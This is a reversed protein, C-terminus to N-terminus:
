GREREKEMREWTRESSVDEGCGGKEEGVEGVKRKGKNWRDM